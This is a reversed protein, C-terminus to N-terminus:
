KKKPKAKQQAKPKQQPKKNNSAPRAAAKKTGGTSPQQALANGGSSIQLGMSALTEEKRTVRNQLGRKLNAPLSLGTYYSRQRQHLQTLFQQPNLQNIDAICDNINKHQRGAVQNVLNVIQKAAGGSNVCWDTLSLAVRDDKIQNFGNKCYYNKFFVQKAFEQPMQRMDGKYGNARAETKIVGWATEGGPDGPDNSYKGEVKVLYNFIAQFRQTPDTAVSAQTTANALSATQPTFNNMLSQSPMRMQAAALQQYQIKLQANRARAQNLQAVLNATNNNSNQFM